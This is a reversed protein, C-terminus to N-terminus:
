AKNSAVLFSSLIFCNSLPPPQWHLVHYAPEFARLARRLEFIAIFGLTVLVGVLVCYSLRTVLNLLGTNSNRKIDSDDTIVTQLKLGCATIAECLRGPL